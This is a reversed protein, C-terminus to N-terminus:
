PAQAVQGFGSSGTKVAATLAAASSDIVGLGGTAPSTIALPSSTFATAYRSAVPAKNNFSLEGVSGVRLTWMDTLGGGWNLTAGGLAFGVGPVTTIADAGDALPGGYALQSLIKADKDVLVLWADSGLKADKLDPALGALAYGGDTTKTVSFLQEPAQGEGLSFAFRPTAAKASLEAYFGDSDSGDVNTRTGVVLYTDASAGPVFQSAVLDGVDQYYSSGALTGSDTILTLLIAHRPISVQSLVAYTKTGPDQLLDVPQTPLCNQKSDRACFQVDFVPKGSGDVKTLHGMIVQAAGTALPPDQIAVCFAYGGDLTPIVEGGAALAAGGGSYKYELDFKGAGGENHLLPQRSKSANDHMGLAIVSKQDTNTALGLASLTGNGDSDQLLQDATLKGTDADLRALVLQTDKVGAPLTEGLGVVTGDGLATVHMMRDTGKAGTTVAWFRYFNATCNKPTNLATLTVTPTTGTCDGTWSKFVASAGAMATLTVSGNLDAVCSAPDGSSCSAGGSGSATITGAGTPAALANVIPRFNATCVLSANVNLALTPNTGGGCNASWSGFAWGPNQSASFNVAQGAPVANCGSSGCDVGASGSNAPNVVASATFTNVAFTAACSANLNKLTISAANSPACNPGTWGVFHYNNAPTAALTVNVGFNVVCSAGSCAAGGAPTASVTGNTGATAAITFTDLAFTATCTANVSSLDLPNNAGPACGAGTWGSFHYGNTSDATASLAVSTGADVTCGTGACAGVGGIKAASVTGGTSAVAAITFQQVYNASCAKSTTVNSLTISNTAGTCGADGTWNVFRYSAITPAVLTVSGLAPIACSGPTCTAGTTTSTATVVGTAGVVTGTVSVGPLYNATCTINGTTPTVTIGNGSQNAALCGAGTWGTLYSGSVTPALLTATTGADLICSNGSCSANVNGSSASVGAPLGAATFRPTYNAVCAINSTVKAIELPNVTGTCLADGSWGTFRYGSVPTAHFSASSGADAPCSLADCNGNAVGVQASAGLATVSLLYQAAFSASCTLDQTVKLTLTPGPISQCQPSGTWGVFRFGAAPTAKMTIISQDDVDGKCGLATCNLNPTSIVTGGSGDGAVALSVAHQVLFTAVCQENGTITLSTKPSKGTCSGSWGAFRSDAGPRATLEFVTGLAAPYVCPKTRFCAAADSVTVTGNGEISVELAPEASTSGAAGGDAIPADTAAGAAGAVSGAEGGPGADAETDPM